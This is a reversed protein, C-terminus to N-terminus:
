IGKSWTLWGKLMKNIKESQDIIHAYSKNSIIKCESALRLRFKLRTFSSLAKQIYMQKESNPKTNTEVVYDLTQWALKLTDEGLSYKYEKPYNRVLQYLYIIFKYVALYLVKDTNKSMIM